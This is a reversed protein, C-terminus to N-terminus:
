TAFKVMMLPPEQVLMCITKVSLEPSVDITMYLLRYFINLIVRSGKSYRVVHCWRQM